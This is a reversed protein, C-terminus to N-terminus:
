TAFYIFLGEEHLRKTGTKTLPDNNLTLGAVCAKGGGQEAYDLGAQSEEPSSFNGGDCAVSECRTAAENTPQSNVVANNLKPQARQANYALKCANAPV